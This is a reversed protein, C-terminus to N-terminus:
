ERNLGKPGADLTEILAEISLSADKFHYSKLQNQLRRFLEETGEPTRCDQLEKLIELVKRPQRKKVLPTMERLRSIWQCDSLEKQPSEKESGRERIGANEIAKLLFTLERNFDDLLEDYRDIQKEKIIANLRAAANQLERAGLNGAAGKVTHAVREARERQNRELSSKIDEASQEFEECFKRLLNLYLARNGGLRRLGDSVDIREIEPIVFEKQAGAKDDGTRTFSDPLTRQGPKIWRVLTEWLEEPNFPKTVYDNMGAKLVREKVGVMADATMAIVPLGEYEKRSRIAGTAEYGDMVPMQLDMLICDYEPGVAEAAERGNNVVDIYFGEQELTEKAVQQNIENDEALLIRAGRINEFGEPKYKENRRKKIASVTTKGFVQMICDFLMSPSVPKILFGDLLGDEAKHMIEERGFGTVMIIKPQKVNELDRRIRQVAEFGNMGPMQYDMLVLDYEFNESAKVQNLERLALEGSAVGKSLFSFDELYSNLVDRASENDDVVLVRVGKLDEPAMRNVRACGIKLKVTFFFTSGKGYESVVGIGGGMLESLKKSIALGLGTGGYKRTTSTDAQSFSQFLRKQQDETLGIGTDSVEFRILAEEDTQKELKINVEIQGAETFKVANNCLNLLIQGLRLPDGKLSTPIELDQRFILELGRARVKEGILNSLNDLVDNLLFDTEEIDMKGAEIKSFDLIDNIIVLLNKASREIKEIYDKQKLDLETRSVLSSLGIIANMPTRIEHSMNALFDGKARTAAEADEKAVALEETMAKMATIDRTVAVVLRQDQNGESAKMPSFHSDFWHKRGNLPLSYEVSVVNNLKLCRDIGRQIKEAVKKPLVARLSMGELDTGNKFNRFFSHPEKRNQGLFSKKFTGEESIINILDPFAGILAAMGAKSIELDEMINLMARRAHSLDELRSKLEDSKRVAEDKAIKLDDAHEELDRNNKRLRLLLSERSPEAFSQQWQELLDAPIQKERHPLTFWGSLASSAATGSKKEYGSFLKAAVEATMEPNCPSITLILCDANEKRGLLIRTDSLILDKEDTLVLDSFASAIRASGIHSFGLDRSLYLLKKRAHTLTSMEEKKFSGIIQM